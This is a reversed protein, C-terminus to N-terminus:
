SAQIRGNGRDHEAYGIGAVSARSAAKILARVIATM